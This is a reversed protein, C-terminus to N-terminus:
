EERDTAYGLVIRRCEEELEPSVLERKELVCIKTFAACPVITGTCRITGHPRSTARPSATESPVLDADKCTAIEDDVLNPSQAIASHYDSMLWDPFEPTNPLNTHM